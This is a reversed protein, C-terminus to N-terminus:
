GSSARRIGNNLTRGVEEKFEIVTEALDVVAWWSAPSELTHCVLDYPDFTRIWHVLAKRDDEFATSHCTHTHYARDEEELSIHLVGSHPCVPSSARIKWHSYCDFCGLATLFQTLRLSVEGHSRILWRSMLEPPILERTWSRGGVAPSVVREVRKEWRAHTLIRSERPANAFELTDPEALGGRRAYFGRLAIFAQLDFPHYAHYGNRHRLIGHPVSVRM